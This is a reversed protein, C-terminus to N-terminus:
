IHSGTGGEKDELGIKKSDPINWRKEDQQIKKDARDLAECDLFSFGFSSAFVYRNENVPLICIRMDVSFLYM